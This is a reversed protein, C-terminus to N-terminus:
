EKGTLSDVVWCGRVHPSSSRCHTLMAQSDCGAEELADALFALHTKDFTGAPLCRDDYIAQAIKRVTGYNWTLWNADPIVPRFPNGVIDRLLECRRVEEEPVAEKAHWQANFRRAYYNVREGPSGAHTAIHTRFDVSRVPGRQVQGPNTPLFPGYYYDQAQVRSSELEESGALGDAYREAVEVANRFPEADLIDWIRRCCACMFLRLKRESVKGTIFALMPGPDVGNLWESETM